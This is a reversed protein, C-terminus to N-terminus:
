RTMIVNIERPFASIDLMCLYSIYVGVHVCVYMLCAGGGGGGGGVCVCVYNLYVGWCM